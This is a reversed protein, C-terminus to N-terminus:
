ANPQEEPQEPPALDLMEGDKMPGGSYLMLKNPRNHRKVDWYHGSYVAQEYVERPGIGHKEYYDDRDRWTSYMKGDPMTYFFIVERQMVSRMAREWGQIYEMIWAPAKKPLTAVIENRRKSIETSAMGFMRASSYLDAISRLLRERHNYATNFRM